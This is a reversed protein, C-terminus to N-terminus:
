LRDKVEDKADEVKGKAEGWKQEAEGQKERAEDGTLEGETEKAKGEVKDKWEGMQDEKRSRAEHCMIGDATECSVESGASGEAGRTRLGSTHRTIKAEEM